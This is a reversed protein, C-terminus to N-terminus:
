FRVRLGASTPGLLPEFSVSPAPAQPAAGPPPEAPVKKGGIVVMAIGGGLGLAGLAMLAYGTDLKGTNTTSGGEIFNTTTATAALYIGGLGLLVSVPILVIGGAWLGTNRRVM